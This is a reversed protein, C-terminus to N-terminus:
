PQSTPASPLLAEEDQNKKGNATLRERHLINDFM